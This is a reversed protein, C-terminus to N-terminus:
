IFNLLPSSLPMNKRLARSGVICSAQQQARGDRGGTGRLAWMRSDEGQFGAHPLPNPVEWMPEERIVSETPTAVHVQESTM